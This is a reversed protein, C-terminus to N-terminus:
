LIIFTYARAIFTVKHLSAYTCHTQVGTRLAYRTHIARFANLSKLQLTTFTPCRTSVPLSDYSLSLFIWNIKTIKCSNCHDHSTHLINNSNHCMCHDVFLDIHSIDLHISTLLQLIDDQIGQLIKWSQIQSDFTGDSNYFKYHYTISWLNVFFNFNRIFTVVHLLCIIKEHNKREPAPGSEHVEHGICKISSPPSHVSHRLM